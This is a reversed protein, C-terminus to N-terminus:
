LLMLAASVSYVAFTGAVVVFGVGWTQFLWASEPYFLSGYAALMVIVSGVLPVLGFKAARRYREGVRDDTAEPLADARSILLGVFVLLLSALAASAGLVTAAIQAM